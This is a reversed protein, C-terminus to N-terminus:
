NVDKVKINKNIKLAEKHLKNIGSYAAPNELNFYISSLIKDKRDSSIM